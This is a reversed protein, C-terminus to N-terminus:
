SKREPTCRSGLYYLIPPDHRDNAPSYTVTSRYCINSGRRLLALVDAVRLGEHKKFRAPSQRALHVCPSAVRDDKFPNKESHRPASQVSSFINDAFGCVLLM